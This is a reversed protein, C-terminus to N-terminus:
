EKDNFLVGEYKQELLNTSALTGEHEPRSYIFALNFIRKIREDILKRQAKFSQGELTDGFHRGDSSTLWEALMDVLNIEVKPKLALFKKELYRDLNAKRGFHGIYGSPHYPKIYDQLIKNKFVIDSFGGQFERIPRHREYSPLVYGEKVRKDHERQEERRYYDSLIKPREKTWGKRQKFYSNVLEKFEPTNEYHTGMPSGSYLGRNSFTEDESLHIVLIQNDGTKEKVTEDRLDSIKNIKRYLFVDSSSLSAFCSHIHKIVVIQRM